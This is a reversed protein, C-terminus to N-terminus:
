EGGAEDCWKNVESILERTRAKIEAINSEDPCGKFEVPPLLQWKMKKREVIEQFEKQAGAAWGFSGFLFARRNMAKKNGLEELAEAMAPFLKYEYTPSGIIVGSSEWVDSIVFSNNDTNPLHHVACDFGAEKITDVVPQVAKETNGYMSAWLVTIKKKAPGQSYSTYKLYQKVIRMPDKRWVIGHGPAIMKIPLKGAKEIARRAPVSFAGVINSYYRRIEPELENLEEETLEDDYMKGEETAQFSGFADCPFITGSLTDFTAITEPWHVNPIEEFALVRGAGLDLTDGSKVTRIRQDKFGYFRELLPVSKEHTVVTVDDKIKSKFDNLWGSHDPEMHNVIIYDIDNHDLNMQQFQEYLKEPVGDWGCVGDIIAIKEGKVIYSSMAVGKPIPWLSEFLLDYANASLKFVGECVQTFKM